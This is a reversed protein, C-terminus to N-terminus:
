AKQTGKMESANSANNAYQELQAQLKAIIASQDAILSDKDAIILKMRQEMEKLEDAFLENVAKCMNPDVEKEHKVLKQNASTFIDMITDAEPKNSKSLAPTITVIDELNQRTGRRTLCKLWPCDKDSVESTVIVQTTFPLKNKLSYIGSVTKTIIIGDNSLRDLLRYPHGERVFTMTYDNVKHNGHLERENLYLGTYALTKFFDGYTLSDGPSKYECINYKSFVAGIPNHIIASKENKIILLDIRQHKGTLYYEKSYQLDKENDALDLKMASVFGNHWNIRSQKERM